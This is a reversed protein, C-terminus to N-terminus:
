DGESRGGQEYQTDMNDLILEQKGKDTWTTEVSRVVEGSSPATTTVDNRGIDGLIRIGDMGLANDSTLIDGVGENKWKNDVQQGGPISIDSQRVNRVFISQDALCYYERRDGRHTTTVQGSTAGEVGTDTSSSCAMGHSNTTKDDQVVGQGTNTYPQDGLYVEREALITAMEDNDDGESEELVLGDELKVLDDEKREGLDDELTEWINM